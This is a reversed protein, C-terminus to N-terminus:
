SRMKFDTKLMLFAPNRHGAKKNLM